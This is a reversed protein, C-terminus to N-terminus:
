KWKSIQQKILAAQLYFFIFKSPSNKLSTWACHLSLEEQGSYNVMIWKERVLELLVDVLLWTTSTHKEEEPIMDLRYRLLSYKRSKGTLHNGSEKWISFATSWPIICALDKWDWGIGQSGIFQLSGPKEIWPIRWPLISSHTAMGEELPIEGSGPILGPDRCQSTLKKGSAGGPFGMPYLSGYFNCCKHQFKGLHGQM